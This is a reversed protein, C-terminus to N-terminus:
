AIKISATAIFGSTVKSNNLYMYIFKIKDINEKSDGVCM